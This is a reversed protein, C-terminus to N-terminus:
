DSIQCFVDLCYWDEVSIGCDSLFQGIMSIDNQKNQSPTCTHSALGIAGVLKEDLNKGIKSNM